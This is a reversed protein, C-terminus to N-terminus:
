VTKRKTIRLGASDSTVQNESGIYRMCFLYMFIERSFAFFSSEIYVVLYLPLLSKSYLLDTITKM